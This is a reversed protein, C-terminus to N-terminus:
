KATRVISTIDTQSRTGLNVSQIRTLSTIWGTHVDVAIEANDEMAITKAFEGEQSQKGRRAALDKIMSKLIRAAEEPDTTQNWSLLAQGSQQDFAKLIIRARTPFPDGGIPNPLLDNYEHPENLVHKRGLAMFYIRADRTCLQEVQEKTAFMTKWQARLNSLLTQDASGKHSNLTKALLADMAKFTESRLEKWNQVGTITGREDIQLVIQKGKMIGVVQRLFNESPLSSEFTTDGATWGVFYGKDDARLVDVTFHTRTKGSRTSRGDVSKERTRTITLDFSDGKKWHPLIEMNHRALDDFGSLPLCLVVLLVTRIISTMHKTIIVFQLCYTGPLAAPYRATRIYFTAM